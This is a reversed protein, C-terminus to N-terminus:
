NKAQMWLSPLGQLLNAFLGEQLLGQLFDKRCCYKCLIRNYCDKSLNRVIKPLIKRMAIIHIEKSELKQAFFFSINCIHHSDFRM